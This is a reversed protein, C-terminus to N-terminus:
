TSAENRKNWVTATFIQNLKKYIASASMKYDCVMAVYMNTNRFEYFWQEFERNYQSLDQQESEDQVLEMLKKRDSM